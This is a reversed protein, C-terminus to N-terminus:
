CWGGSALLNEIERVYDGLNQDQIIPTVVVSGVPNCEMRSAM